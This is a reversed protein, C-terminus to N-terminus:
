RNLNYRRPSRSLFGPVLFPLKAYRSVPRPEGARGVVIPREDRVHHASDRHTSRFILCLQAPSWEWDLMKAREKGEGEQRGEKGEKRKKRKGKEKEGGEKMRMKKVVGPPRTKM